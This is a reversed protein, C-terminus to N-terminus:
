ETLKGQELFQRERGIILMDLKDPKRTKGKTKGKTKVKNPQKQTLSGDTRTKQDHCHGHLLQLNDYRDKGGQSKPTIHDVEMVDGDMFHEGCWNCKGKQRKLLNLQRTSLEPHTQLRKSWYKIDGDFPSRNGKVKVYETSSCHIDTHYRIATNATSHDCWQKKLVTKGDLRLHERDHLYRKLGKTVTGCSRKAWSRLKPYM